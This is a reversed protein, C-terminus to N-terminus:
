SPLESLGSETRLSVFLRTLKTGRVKGLCIQVDVLIRVDSLPDIQLKPKLKEIDKVPYVERLEVIIERVTIKALRGRLLQWAIPLEACPKGESRV